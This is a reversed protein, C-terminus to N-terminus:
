LTLYLFILTRKRGIKTQRSSLGMKCYYFTHHVSRIVDCYSYTLYNRMNISWVSCYLSHSLVRRKCSAERNGPGQHEGPSVETLPLVWQPSCLYSNVWLCFGDSCREPEQSFLLTCTLEIWDSAQAAHSCSFTKTKYSCWLLMHNPTLWAAWSM